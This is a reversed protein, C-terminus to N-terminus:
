FKFGKILKGVICKSIWYGVFCGVLCLGILMDCVVGDKCFGCVENCNEGWCGIINCVIVFYYFLNILKLFKVLLWWM